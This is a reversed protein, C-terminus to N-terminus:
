LVVLNLDTDIDVFNTAILNNCKLYECNKVIRPTATGDIAIVYPEEDLTLSSLRSLPIKKIKELNDNFIIAGKTGVLGTVESKIEDKEKESM